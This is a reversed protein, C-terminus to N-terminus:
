PPAARNLARGVLAADGFIHQAHEELARKLDAPILELGQRAAETKCETEFRQLATLRAPEWSKGKKPQFAHPSAEEVYEEVDESSSSSSSIYIEERCGQQQHPHQQHQGHRAQKAPPTPDPSVLNIVVPPTELQNIAHCARIWIEMAMYWSAALHWSPYLMAVQVLQQMM